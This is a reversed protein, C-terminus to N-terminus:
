QNCLYLLQKGKQQQARRLWDVKHVRFDQECDKAKHKPKQVYFERECGIQM